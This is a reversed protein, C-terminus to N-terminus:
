PQMNSLDFLGLPKKSASSNDFVKVVITFDNLGRKAKYFRFLEANTILHIGRFLMFSYNTQFAVPAGPPIDVVSPMGPPVARDTTTDFLWRKLSCDHNDMIDSLNGQGSWLADTFHHRDADVDSIDNVGFFNLIYEEFKEPHPDAHVGAVFAQHTPEKCNLKLSSLMSRTGGTPHQVTETQNKM